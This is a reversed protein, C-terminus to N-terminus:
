NNEYNYIRKISWSKQNHLYNRAEEKSMGGLIAAGVDSLRLTDKAIKTQHKEAVTFM